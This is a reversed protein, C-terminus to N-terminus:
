LDRRRPRGAKTQVEATVRAQMRQREAERDRKALAASVAHFWKGGQRGAWEDLAFLERRLSINPFAQEWRDFDPQTLRITEGVFAYSPSAKPEPGILEGKGFLDVVVGGEPPCDERKDEDNRKEKENKRKRYPYASNQTDTACTEACRNRSNRRIQGASNQADFGDDECLEALGIRGWAFAYSNSRQRRRSILWGADILSKIAAEVTRRGCGGVDRCLTEIKPDCQLTKPNLRNVLSFAVAKATPNVKEDRMIEQILRLKDTPKVKFTDANESFCNSAKDGDSQYFVNNM